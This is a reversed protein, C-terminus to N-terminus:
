YWLCLHIKIMSSSNENFHLCSQELRMIFVPKLTTAPTKIRCKSPETILDQSFGVLFTLTGCGFAQWCTNIDLVRPSSKFVSTRCVYCPIHQMIFFRWQEMAILVSFLDILGREDISPSMEMFSFLEWSSHFCSYCGMLENVISWVLIMTLTQSLYVMHWFGFLM